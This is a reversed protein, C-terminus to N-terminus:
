YAEYNIHFEDIYLTSGVAGQFKAGDKSSSAVIAISYKGQIMKNIDFTKGNMP